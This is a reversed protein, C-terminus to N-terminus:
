TNSLSAVHTMFNITKYHIISFFFAIPVRVQIPADLDIKIDLTGKLRITTENAMYIKVTSMDAYENQYDPCSIIEKWSLM